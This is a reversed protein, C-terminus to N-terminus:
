EHISLKTAKLQIYEPNQASLGALTCAIDVIEAHTQPSTQLSQEPYTNGDIYKYNGYSVRAPYKVYELYVKNVPFDCYIYMAESESDSARGINYPIFEEGAEFFPDKLSSRYDDHQVFRLPISKVCGPKIEADV